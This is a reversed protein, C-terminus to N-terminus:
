VHFDYFHYKLLLKADIDYISGTDLLMMRCVSLIEWTAM